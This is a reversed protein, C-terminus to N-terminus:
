FNQQIWIVVNKTIQGQNVNALIWTLLHYLYFQKLLLIAFCKSGAHGLDSITHM